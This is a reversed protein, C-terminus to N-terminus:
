VALAPGHLVRKLLTAYTLVQLFTQVESDHLSYCYINSSLIYYINLTAHIYMCETRM